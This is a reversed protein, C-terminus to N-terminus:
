KYKDNLGVGQAILKKSKELRSVQTAERKASAIHEAYENRKGPTLKKFAERLEADGDLAKSLIEPIEVKKKKSEIEKGDLQNQRAEKVYERVRKEDIETTEDFRWQRLGKTKDKQANILVGAKDKLFVGNYFWLAMHNKFAAIGVVNKGDVSYVPVGWKIAATLGTAAIIKHLLKIEESWKPHKQAYDEIKFSPDSNAM